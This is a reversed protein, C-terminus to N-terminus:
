VFDRQRQEERDADTKAHKKVLHLRIKRFNKMEVSIIEDVAFKFIGIVPFHGM